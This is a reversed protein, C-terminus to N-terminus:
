LSAFSDAVKIKTARIAPYLTAVVAICLALGIAVPLYLPVFSIATGEFIIPGIFYALATGAVYGFIGGGAGVVTAEYVLAKIIQSRSAGVARMIGIDKKRENISTMLTNFVGFGGVILTVGAIALMFRNIKELMGMETAAIQKVAVARVGPVDQNIATAITEVPCGNCLARVDISSVLGEKGFAKQLSTLPVFIQYDEDSGSDELVGVVTFSANNLDLTDGIKLNLLAATQGGLLAQDTGDLYKGQSVQWWTKIQFEEEPDIGAVVASSGKVNTGVFLTPAITSINGGPKIDTRYQRILTDAIQRIQPIKDEAIYNDGVNITGLNLNGLGTDISKVAPLLSLNAGYKELQATIKAQGATATTLIGVVTMTGIVVGLVAYLVRRKRRLIDKLVVQYLKM